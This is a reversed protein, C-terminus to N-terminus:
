RFDRGWLFGTYANPEDTVQWIGSGDVAVVFLNNNSDDSVTGPVVVARGDPSWQACCVGPDFQATLNTLGAGDPRVIYLDHFRGTSQRDFAILSGDPSFRASTAGPANPVLPSPDSGLTTQALYISTTGTDADRGAFVIQRGDASWSAPAQILGNTSVTVGVPTVQQVSLDSVQLVFLPGTATPGDTQAARMFLLQTSDPSFAIPIDPHNGTARTQGWDWPITFNRDALGMGAKSADTDSWMSLAIYRGDPSWADPEYNLGLVECAACETPVVFAVRSGPRDVVEIGMLSQDRPVGVPAVGPAALALQQGDPSFLGCCGGQVLKTPNAGSPDILWLTDAGSADHKTFEITGGGSYGLPALLDVQSDGPTPADTPFADNAAGPDLRVTTLWATFMGHLAEGTGSTLVATLQYLRGGAIVTARGFGCGGYDEFIYGAASDVQTPLYASVVNRCVGGGPGLGAFYTRWWDDATQGPDLPASQAQLLPVQGGPPILEDASIGPGSRQAGRVTWGTPVKFSLGYRKSVYTQWASPDIPGASAVPPPKRTSGVLVAAGLVALAALGVALFRLPRANLPVTWSGGLSRRRPSRAIDELASQLVLDSLETPGEALWGRAIRDFDSPARTM